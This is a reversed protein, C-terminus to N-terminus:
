QSSRVMSPVLFKRFLCRQEDPTLNDQITAAAHCHRIWVVAEDNSIGPRLQGRQRAADLLPSWLELMVAQIGSTGTFLFNDVDHDSNRVIEELLPDDRAASLARMSGEVLAEELSEFRAFCEKLGSGIKRIRRDAVYALLASRTDFLRYITQRTVGLEDAVDKVSTRHVGFRAFCREAADAVQGARLAKQNSGV